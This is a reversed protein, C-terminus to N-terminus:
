WTPRATSAQKTSCTACTRSVTSEALGLENAIQPVGGIEVVGQLVRVETATLKYLKALAELPSRSDLGPKRVFVAAVAAHAAGVLKRHGSTLPLVHALWREGSEPTLPVAVGADGVAADGDFAAAFATAYYERPPSAPLSALVGQESRLVSGNRTM